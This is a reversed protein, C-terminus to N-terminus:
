ISVGMAILKKISSCEEKHFLWFYLLYSFVGTFISFLLVSVPSLYFIFKQLITISLFMILSGITAPLVTKLITLFSRKIVKAAENFTLFLIITSPVVVAISTGFIGYKATLPYILIAMFSLQLFNIKSMTKPNGSALFLNQTISIMSRNLGYLCLLNLITAAPLWKDGYVIKIFYWSVSIIGIAAPFTVFSLYKLTKLYAQAMKSLDEQMKSYVPFMVQSLMVSIQSTFFSSVGIALSYYGLEESGLIRGIVTIDIISILFITISATIVHKGYSLL